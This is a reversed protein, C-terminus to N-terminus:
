VTVSLAAPLVSWRSALPPTAAAKWSTHLPTGMPRLSSRAIDKRHLLRVFKPPTRHGEGQPLSCPAAQRQPRRPKSSTGCRHARGSGVEFIRTKARPGAAHSASTNEHKIMAAHQIWFKAISLFAFVRPDLSQDLLGMLFSQEQQFRSLQPRCRGM